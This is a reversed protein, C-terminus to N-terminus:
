RPGSETGGTTSGPRLAELRGAGGLYLNIIEPDHILDQSRGEFRNTGMDLVYTYRSAALSRRANQEVMLIAVGSGRIEALKAFVEDVVMPALGASPEDLLLVRPEPMLARALALMQRQGGSLVGARQRRREYLLPFMAYARDLHRKMEKRAVTCGIELNEALTLRPFINALQPVYGMGYETVRYPKLGAVETMTGGSSLLVSGARPPLVGHVAKLLTSKGAGNPGIVSVFDGETITLDIGHLIDTDQYGARLGRVRLIEASM